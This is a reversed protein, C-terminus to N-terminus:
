RRSSDGHYLRAGTRADAPPRGRPSWLSRSYGYSAIRSDRQGNIRHLVWIGGVFMVVMAVIVLITILGIM